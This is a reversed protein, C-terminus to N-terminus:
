ISKKVEATQKWVAQPLYQWQNPGDVVDPVTAAAITTATAAAKPHIGDGLRINPVDHHQVYDSGDNRSHQRSSAASSGASYDGSRGSCADDDISLESITTRSSLSRLMM